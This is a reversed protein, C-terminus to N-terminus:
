ESMLWNGFHEAAASAAEKPTMPNSADRMDSPGGLDEDSATKSTLREFAALVDVDSNAIKEVIGEDITDGTIAEYKDSLLGALKERNQRIEEAKEHEMADLYAATKELANAVLELKNTAM